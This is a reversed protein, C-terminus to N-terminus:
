PIAWSISMVPVTCISCIGAAQVSRCIFRASPAIPIAGACARSWMPSRRRRRRAVIAGPCPPFRPLARSCDSSTARTISSYLLHLRHDHVAAVVGAGTNRAFSPHRIRYAGGARAMQHLAPSSLRSAQQAARSFSASSSAPSPRLGVVGVATKGSNGLLIKHHLDYVTNLLYPRACGHADAKRVGRAAAAPWASRRAERRPAELGHEARDRVLLRYVEGPAQPLRIREIATAPLAANARATIEAPGLWAGPTDDRLLAPNLWADIADQYVLVSGSLGLLAFWAGLAFGLYRHILVWTKRAAINAM